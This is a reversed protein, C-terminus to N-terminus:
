DRVERGEHRCIIVLSHVVAIVLHAITFTGLYNRKIKGIYSQYVSELNMEM